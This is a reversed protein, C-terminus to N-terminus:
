DNNTSNIISDIVVRLDGFRFPKTILADFGYDEKEVESMAGKSGMVIINIMKYREDFKLLRCLKLGSMVPLRDEAILLDPMEQKAREYGEFGDKSSIVIFGADKLKKQLSNLIRNDNEIVLISRNSAKKMSYAM